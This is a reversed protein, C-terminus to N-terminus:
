SLVHHQRPIACAMLLLTLGGLMEACGNVSRLRSLTKGPYLGCATSAACLVGIIAPSWISAQIMVFSLGMALAGISTAVALRILNRGVTADAALLFLRLAVHVEKRGSRM